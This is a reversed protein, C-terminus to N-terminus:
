QIGEFLLERVDKAKFRWLVNDIFYHHVNIFLIFTIIFFSLGLSRDAGVVDDLHNPIADFLLYGTLIMFGYFMLVRKIPHRRQNKKYRSVEVKAVFPFYQISHFFAIIGFYQAEGLFPVHWILLAFMPVLFNWSPRQKGQVYKVLFMVFILAFMLAVVVYSVQFWVYPLALRHISLNFFPYTGTSCNSYLWTLWWTSLLAYRLLNRELGKLPYNDMKAYVMMCGFTQKSYHWGVSFYMLLVFLGLMESRLNPYLGLRTQLGMGGLIGNIARVFGSDKISYDGFVYSILVLAILSMPIFILQFWNQFVFRRGQTYALKYSAMFHPYNGCYGLYFVIMPLFLGVSKVSSFTDQLFYLPFWLLIALGGMFMFDLTRSGMLSVRPLARQLALPRAMRKSAITNM